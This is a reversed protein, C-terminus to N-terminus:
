HETSGGDSDMADTEPRRSKYMHVSYDYVNPSPHVERIEVGTSSQYHIVISPVTDPEANRDLQLLQGRKSDIVAGVARLYQSLSFFDPLKNGIDRKARGEEDLREITEVTYALEAPGDFDANRGARKGILGRSANSDVARPLERVLYGNESSTLNFQTIGHAELDQGIARLSRAHFTPEFM